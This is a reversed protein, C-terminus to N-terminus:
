NNTSDLVENNHEELDADLEDTLKNEDQSNLNDPEDMISIAPKSINSANPENMNLAKNQRQNYFLGSTNNAMLLEINDNFFVYQEMDLMDEPYNNSFHPTNLEYWDPEM